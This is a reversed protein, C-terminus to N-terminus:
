EQGASGLGSAVMLKVENWFAPAVDAPFHEAVKKLCEDAPEQYVLSLAAAAIAPSRSMGAGCCVLTPVRKELLNAVTIIALDLTKPDSGTGDIIPFRCYLMERPLMVPPEEVALQVVAMIGADLIARFEHADRANGLWLQYPLIQRM